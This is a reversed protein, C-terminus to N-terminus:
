LSSNLMWANKEHIEIRKLLIDATAEDKEAVCTHMTETLIQVIDANDKALTKVMSDSDLHEDGEKISSISLYKALSGPTKEGLTRIREAIEDIAEALDTYQEEFMKHLSHFSHGTVNWHFNQTKTYLVYSNALVHTLGTVIKKNSM